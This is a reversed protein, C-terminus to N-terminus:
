KFNNKAYRGYMIEKIKTPHRQSLSLSLPRPQHFPINVRVFLVTLWVFTVASWGFRSVVRNHELFENKNKKFNKKTFLKWVYIIKIIKPTESLSLSLAKTPPVAITVQVFLVTSWVFTVVSLGFRGVM